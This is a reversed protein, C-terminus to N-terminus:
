QAGALLARRVCFVVSRRPQQLGRTGRHGNLKVRASSTDSPRTEQCLVRDETGPM